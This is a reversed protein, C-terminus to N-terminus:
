APPQPHTSRHLVATAGTGNRVEIVRGVASEEQHDALRRRLLHDPLLKREESLDLVNPHHPVLLGFVMFADGVHFEASRRLGASGHLVHVALGEGLIGLGNLYRRAKEM